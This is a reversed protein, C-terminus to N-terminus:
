LEHVFGNDDEWLKVTHGGRYALETRFKEQDEITVTFGLVNDGLEEGDGNLFADWYYPVYPACGEFKGPHEVTERYDKYTQM